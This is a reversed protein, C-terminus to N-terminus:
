SRIVYRGDPFPYFRIGLALCRFAHHFGGQWQRRPRGSAPCRRPRGAHDLTNNKWVVECVPEKKWSSTVVVPYRDISKTGFVCGEIKLDVFRTKKSKGTVQCIIGGNTQNGAFRYMGRVDRIELNQLYIHNVDGVDSATVYIARRIARGQDDWGGGDTNTVTLNRIEWHHQNNLRITNEVKGEGNIIPSAGKGYKDIVVPKGKVGSGKPQLSGTFKCGAKLLVNDGPALTMSNVPALSKWAKQASIGSNDDDGGAADVYYTTGSPSIAGATMDGAADVQAHCFVCSVVVVGLVVLRKLVRVSM